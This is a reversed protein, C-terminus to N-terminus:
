KLFLKSGERGGTYLPSAFSGILTPTATALSCSSSTGVRPGAVPKSFSSMNSSVACVLLVGVLVFVGSSGGDTKRCNDDVRGGINAVLRNDHRGRRRHAWLQKLQWSPHPVVEPLIVDVRSRRRVDDLEL